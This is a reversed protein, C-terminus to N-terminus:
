YRKNFFIKLLKLNLDMGVEVFGLGNENYGCHHFLNVAIFGESTCKKFAITLIEQPFLQFAFDANKQIFQQVGVEISNLHPPLFLVIAGRSEIPKILEKFLQIRANDLVVISNPLPWPNLDDLFKSVIIRYFKSKTFGDM